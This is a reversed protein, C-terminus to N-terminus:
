VRFGMQLVGGWVSGQIEFGQARFGVGCVGSGLSSQQQTVQALSSYYPIGM